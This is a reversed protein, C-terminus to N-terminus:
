YCWFIGWRRYNYHTITLPNEILLKVVVNLTSYIENVIISNKVAM